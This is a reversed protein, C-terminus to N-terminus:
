AKVKESYDHFCFQMLNRLVPKDDISIQELEINM